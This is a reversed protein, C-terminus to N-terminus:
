FYNRGASWVDHKEKKATVEGREKAKAMELIRDKMKEIDEDPSYEQEYIEKLIPSGTVNMFTPDTEQMEHFIDWFREVNKKGFEEAIESTLEGGTKEYLTKLQEETLDSIDTPTMTVKLAEGKFWEEEIAKAGTVTSSKQTFFDQLVAYERHLEKESVATSFRELGAKRVHRIATPTLELRELSKIRRNATQFLQRM